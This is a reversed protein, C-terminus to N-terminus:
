NSIAHTRYWEAADEIFLRRFKSPPPTAAIEAFSKGTMRRPEDGLALVYATHHRLEYTPGAFTMADMSIPMGAEAARYAVHICRRVFGAGHAPRWRPKDNPVSSFATAIAALVEACDEADLECDVPPRRPLEHTIEHGMVALLEGSRMPRNFVFHHGAGRWQGTDELNKRMLFNPITCSAFARAHGRDLIGAPLGYVYIPDALLEPAVAAVLAHCEDIQSQDIM